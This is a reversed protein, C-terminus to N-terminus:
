KRKLTTLEDRLRSKDADRAVDLHREFSALSHDDRRKTPRAM